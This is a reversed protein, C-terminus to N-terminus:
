VTYEAVLKLICYLTPLVFVCSDFRDMIGGHGPMLQSYDKIGFNRKIVSASLDGMMSIFSGVMSIPVIYLFKMNSEGMFSYDYINRCGLTFFLLILVNMVATLVVGGVAGEISKKPSIVPAM